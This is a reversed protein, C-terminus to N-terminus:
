AAFISGEVKNIALLGCIVIGADVHQSVRAQYHPVSDIMIPKTAGVLCGSGDLLNIAKGWFDGQFSIMTQGSTDVLHYWRGSANESRMILRCCVEGSPECIHPLNGSWPKEYLMSTRVHCIPLNERSSLYIAPLPTMLGKEHIAARALIERSRLDLINMSMQQREGSICDCICIINYETVSPDSPDVFWTQFPSGTSSFARSFWTPKSTAQHGVLSVSAPAMSQSISANHNRRPNVHRITVLSRLLWFFTSACLVIAMLFLVIAVKSTSSLSCGISRVQLLAQQVRMGLAQAADSLVHLDHSMKGVFANGLSGKSTGQSSGDSSRGEAEASDNLMVLRLSSNNVFVYGPGGTAEAADNSIHLGHRQSQVSAHGLNGLAPVSNNTIHLHHSELNNVSANGLIRGYLGIGHMAAISQGHAVRQASDPIQMLVTNYRDRHALTRRRRRSTVLSSYLSDGIIGANSVSLHLLGFQEHQPSQSDIGATSAFTPHQIWSFVVAYLMWLLPAAYGM